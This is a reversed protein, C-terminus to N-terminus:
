LIVDFGLSELDKLAGTFLEYREKAKEETINGDCYLNEPSLSNELEEALMRADDETLNGLTLIRQRLSKRRANVIQLYEKLQKM